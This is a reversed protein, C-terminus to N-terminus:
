GTVDEPEIEINELSFTNHARASLVYNRYANSNYSYKGPDIIVLEGNHFLEFSLEDAHKHASYDTNSTGTIFLQTSAEM